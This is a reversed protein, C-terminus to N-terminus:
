ETEEEGPEVIDDAEEDDIPKEDEPEIMADQLADRSNVVGALVDGKGRYEIALTGQYGVSAVAQVMPALEYTEHVAPPRPEDGEAEPRSKFAVTAACVVSAYPCLRRLYVVPDKAKSATQFDPLTGIRFGGVKKILDTLKEPLATVGDSPAILITIDLKEMNEVIKRLRKSTTEFAKDGEAPQLRLAVSNCGLLSAARIVRGMRLVANDGPEGESALAQPESEILLLCSCGAKDARERVAELKQSNAGALMDTPLNLGSLGLTEKAFVPLDLVTLPQKRGKPATQM